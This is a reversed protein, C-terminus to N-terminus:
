LYFPYLVFGAANLGRAEFVLRVSLDSGPALGDDIRSSPEGSSALYDVPLFVKRAITRNLTDTLTVELAPLGMIFNARSRLAANLEIVDTGPIAALESGIITLLEAHAPWAVKCAYLRCASMLTPRLSPWAELADDRMALGIQIAALLSLPICAIALARTIRQQRVQTETPMFSPAELESAEEQPRTATGPPVTEPTVLVNRYGAQALQSEIPGRVANSPTASTAAKPTVAAPSEFPPEAVGFLTPVALEDRIEEGRPPPPPRRGVGLPRPGPPAAPKAPAPAVAERPRQPRSAPAAVVAPGPLAAGGIPAEARKQMLAHDDVYSLSGIADFVHRCAGCRVLGGRLKLQDAVVRFLARCHPCSAALAM